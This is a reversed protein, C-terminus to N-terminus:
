ASSDMDSQSTPWDGWSRREERIYEDPDVGEGIEKHLGRLAQAWDKPEPMLYVCDDYVTFLLKDGPGVGLRRRVEAPVSIQNKSSITVRGM